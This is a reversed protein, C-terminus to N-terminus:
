GSLVLNELPGEGYMRCESFFNWENLDRVFQMVASQIGSTTHSSSLILYRAISSHSERTGVLDRDTATTATFCNVNHSRLPM